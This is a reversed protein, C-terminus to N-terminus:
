LETNVIIFSSFAFMIYKIVYWIYLVILYLMKINADLLVIVPSIFGYFVLNCHSRIGFISITVVLCLQAFITYKMYNIQNNRSLCKERLNYVRTTLKSIEDDKNKEVQELEEISEDLEEKTGDLDNQLVEKEKEIIKIHLDLNKIIKRISNMVDFFKPPYEYHNCTTLIKNRQNKLDIIKQPIIDKTQSEIENEKNIITNLNKWMYLEHEQITIDKDIKKLREILDNNYVIGSAYKLNFKEMIEENSNKIFDKINDRHAEYEKNEQEKKMKEKAAAIGAEYLANKTAIEAQKEYDEKSIKQISM